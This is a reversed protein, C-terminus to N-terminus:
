IFERKNYVRIGIFISVLVIALVVLDVILTYPSLITNMLDWNDSLTFFVFFSLFLFIRAKTYGLKLYMPIVLSGAFLAALFIAHMASFDFIIVELLGSLKVIALIITILIYLIILQLVMSIYKGIVVEKRTVPCSNIIKEFGYREDYSFTTTISVLVLFSTTTIVDEYFVILALNSPDTIYYTIAIVMALAIIIWKNFVVSFDKKILNIM